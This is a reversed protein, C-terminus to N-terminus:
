SLEENLKHVEDSVKSTFISPFIGHAVATLSLLFLKLALGMAFHLHRGWSLNIDKLHNMIGQSSSYEGRQKDKVRSHTERLYISDERIGHGELWKEELYTEYEFMWVDGNRGVSWHQPEGLPGDM